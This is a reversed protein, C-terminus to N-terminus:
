IHLDHWGGIWDFDDDLLADSNALPPSPHKKPKSTPGANHRWDKNLLEIRHSNQFGRHKPSNSEGEKRRGVSKRSEKHPRPSELEDPHHNRRKDGLAAWKDM